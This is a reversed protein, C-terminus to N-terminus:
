LDDLPNDHEGHEEEPINFDYKKGRIDLGVELFLEADKSKDNTLDHRHVVRPKM